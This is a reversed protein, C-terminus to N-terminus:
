GAFDDMLVVVIGTAEASEEVAAIGLADAVAQATAATVGTEDPPYRVVSAAPDAQDWNGTTVSTFGAGELTDGARGALGSRNTANFVEVPLALDPEPPPAEETVEPEPEETAGETGEATPEEAAPDEETAPDEDQSAGPDLAGPLGDWDSLWTM